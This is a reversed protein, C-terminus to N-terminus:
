VDVQPISPILQWVHEGGAGSNLWMTGDDCLAVIGQDTHLLQTPKRPTTPTPLPLGYCNNTTPVILGRNMLRKIEVDVDFLSHGRNAINHTITGIESHGNVQLWRLIVHELSDM